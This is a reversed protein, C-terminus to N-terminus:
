TKKQAKKKSGKLREENCSEVRQRAAEFEEETPMPPPAEGGGYRDVITSLMSKFQGERKAANALMATALDVEGGSKRKGKGSAKGKGKGGKGDESASGRQRKKAIEQPTPRPRRAVAKAWTTYKKYRPVEEAEIAADLVDMFRHSDLEPDSLSLYNFLMPMAGEFQVYYQLLDRREETSARYGAAFEDIADETLPAYMDRYFAYLSDFQQGSLEESDAISGTQDYVKRRRPLPTLPPPPSPPSPPQSDAPLKARSALPCNINRQHDRGGESM